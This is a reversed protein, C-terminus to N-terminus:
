PVSRAVPSRPGSHLAPRPLLQGGPRTALL